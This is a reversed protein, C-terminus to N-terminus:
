KNQFKQLGAAVLPLGCFECTLCEPHWSQHMAKIGRSMIFQGCRSCLPAILIQFDYRCYRRGKHEYFESLELPRFCQSCVFCSDHFLQEKCSIIKEEPTFPEECRACLSNGELNQLAASSKQQVASCKVDTVHRSTPSSPGSIKLTQHKALSTVDAM